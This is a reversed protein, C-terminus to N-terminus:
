KAKEIVSAKNIKVPTVPKDNAGTRVKGIKQVVKLSEDNATKGYATYQKDLFRAEAVCIFFQSGASDPHQARAMSLVGPVHAKDNFEQPLKYGADGTGTGLPCGGQSMFGDIVRHFTVGDYFGIKSLGIINKCHGPAVDPWLDLLIKGETTDLEIQYTNKTFDVDKVAADVDAKRNAPM